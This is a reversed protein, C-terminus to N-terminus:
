SENGDVLEGHVVVKGNIIRCVTVTFDEGFWEVVAFAHAWRHPGGKMFKNADRDLRKLCGICWASKQGGVHTISAQQVDHKDAYVINVGMKILHNMAHHQGALAYGHYFYLHGIKLLDNLVHYDWGRERIRTADAFGYGPGHQHSTLELYPNEEVLRDLWEDHNGQMFDKQKVGADDCAADIRDLMINVDNIDEDVLPLQYELPPRRKKKWQWHGAHEFEGIDGLCIVRRPKVVSIAKLACTVAAEDHLPTHIDPLVVASDTIGSM